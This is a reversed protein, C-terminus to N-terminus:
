LNRRVFSAIQETAAKTEPLFSFMHFGHFLDAMVELTVEVGALLANHTFRRADDLLIEDGGVQILLPPLGQLEAYLPSILPTTLALDGAYYGAYRTAATSWTEQGIDRRKRSVTAVGAIEVGCGRQQRRRVRRYDRRSRRECFSSSM